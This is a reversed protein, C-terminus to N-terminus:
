IEEASLRWGYVVGNSEAEEEPPAAYVTLIPFYHAQYAEAGTVPTLNATDGAMVMATAVLQGGVIAFGVPALDARRAAPLAISPGAAQRARRAVCSIVIPQDYDLGDLAQPQRGDGRIETAVKGSWAVQQRLSGNAMRDRYRAEVPRYTQHLSEASQLPVRVTLTGDSLILTRLSSM